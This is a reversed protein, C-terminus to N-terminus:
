CILKISVIMIRNNLTIYISMIKLKILKDIFAFISAFSPEPVELVLPGGGIVDLALKLKLVHSM